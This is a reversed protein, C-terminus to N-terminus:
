DKLLEPKLIVKTPAIRKIGFKELIDEGFMFSFVDYPTKDNLAERPYSNIHSMMLDAKQQPLKLETGKPIIRRIFEHNNECSGKQHSSSPDCYFIWTLREGNEDFEIASPNSFETGNDTLIVPFLRKFAANGLKERMGKFWAIVSASDNRERVTALQLKLRVFHITLLCNDDTGIRGLVSDMEVVPADAETWGKLSLFALYDEYTRGVRCQKDVKLPKKEGKRPRYRVKRPLDLNILDDFVGGEVYNYLSKESCGVKEEGLAVIAAHPSFGGDKLLPAIEENMVRVQEETLNFGKRAESRTEMTEENAEKAFYYHKEYNCFSKRNCGNCVYPPRDRKECDKVKFSPCEPGCILSCGSCSKQFCIKLKCSRTVPCQKGKRICVNATDKRPRKTMHTRIERVVTTPSVCIRDAVAKFSKFDGEISIQITARQNYTLQSYKKEM